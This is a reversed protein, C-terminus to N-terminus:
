AQGGGYKDELIVESGKRYKVHIEQKHKDQHKSERSKFGEFTEWPSKNYLTWYEEFYLESGIKHKIDDM